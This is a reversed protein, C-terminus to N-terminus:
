KLNTEFATPKPEEVTMLKLALLFTDMLTGADCSQITQAAVWELQWKLVM